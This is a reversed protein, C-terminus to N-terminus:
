DRHLKMVKWFIITVISNGGKWDAIKQQLAFLEKENTPEKENDYFANDLSIGNALSFIQYSVFLGM